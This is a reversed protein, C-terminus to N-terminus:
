VGNNGNGSKDYVTTGTGENFSYWLVLGDSPLSSNALRGSNYIELIQSSTLTLNYYRVEDIGGKWPNDGGVIFTNATDNIEGRKLGNDINTGNSYETISTDNVRICIHEWTNKQLIKIGRQNEATQNKYKYTITDDSGMFFYNDFGRMSIPNPFNKTLNQYNLWSCITFNNTINYSQSFTTTVEDNVGDFEMWSANNSTASSSTVGQDIPSITVASGSDALITQSASASGQVTIAGLSQFLFIAIIVLLAISVVITIAIVAKNLSENVM